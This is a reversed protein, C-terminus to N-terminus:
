LLFHLGLLHRPLGLLVGILYTLIGAIFLLAGYFLFPFTHRKKM